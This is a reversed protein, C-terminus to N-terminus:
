ISAYGPLQIKGDRQEQALSRHVGHLVYLGVFNTLFLINSVYERKGLLGFLDCTQSISVGHGFNRIRSWVMM